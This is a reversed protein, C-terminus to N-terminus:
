AKQDKTRKVMVEWFPAFGPNNDKLVPETVRYSFTNDRFEDNIQVLAIDSQEVQLKYMTGALGSEVLGSYERMGVFVCGESVRKNDRTPNFELEIRKVTPLKTVKM